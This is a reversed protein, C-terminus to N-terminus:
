DELTTQAEALLSEICSRALVNMKIIRLGYLYSPSKYESLDKKVVLVKMTISVSGILMELDAVDGKQLIESQTVLGIGSLSLNGLYGSVVTTLESSNIRVLISTILAKRDYLRREGVSEVDELEITQNNEVVKDDSDRGVQRVQTGFDIPDKSSVVFSKGTDRRFFSEIELDAVAMSQSLDIVDQITGGNKSKLM